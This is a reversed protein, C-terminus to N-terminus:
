CSALLIGGLPADAGHAQRNGSVIIRGGMTDKDTLRRGNERRRRPSTRSAQNAWSQRGMPCAASM